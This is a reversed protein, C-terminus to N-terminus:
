EYAGSSGKGTHLLFGRAPLPWGMPSHCGLLAGPSPSEHDTQQAILQQGLEAQGFQHDIRGPKDSGGDRPHAGCARRTKLQRECDSLLGVYHNNGGEAGDRLSHSPFVATMRMGQWTGRGDFESTVWFDITANKPHRLQDLGENIWLAPLLVRSADRDGNGSVEFAYTVRSAGLVDAAAGNRTVKPLSSASGGALETSPALWVTSLGRLLSSRVASTARLAV